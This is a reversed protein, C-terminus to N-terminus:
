RITIINSEILIKLRIMTETLLSCNITYMATKSKAVAINM